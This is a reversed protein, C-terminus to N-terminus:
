LNQINLSNQSFFIGYVSFFGFFVFGKCISKLSFLNLLKFNSFLFHLMFYVVVCEGIHALKVAFLFINSYISYYMFVYSFAVIGSVLHFHM